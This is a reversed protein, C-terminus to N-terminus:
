GFQVLLAATSTANLLAHLTMPALLSGSREYLYGLALSLFFLPVPAPWQATHLAAFLMSALVNPLSRRLGSRDLWISLGRPPFFRASPLHDNLALEGLDTDDVGQPTPKALLVRQLWGLLIGRFLLEECFPAIVIATVVVLTVEPATAGAKLIQEVPHHTQDRQPWVHIAAFQVAYVLPSVLIHAVLGRLLNRRAGSLSLGLDALRAGSTAYLILPAFVAILCNATASADLQEVLFWKPAPQTKPIAGPALRGTNLYHFVQFSANQLVVLTLAVLLVSGIGWPVLPFPKRELLPFGRRLRAIALSWGGVAAGLYVMVFLGFILRATEHPTPM